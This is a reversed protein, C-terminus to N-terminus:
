SLLCRSQINLGRHLGLKVDFARNDSSNGELTRVVTLVGKYM